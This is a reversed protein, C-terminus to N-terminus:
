PELISYAASIIAPSHKSIARTIFNDGYTGSYQPDVMFGRGYNYGEVMIAGGSRGSNTYKVGHSDIIVVSSGYTLLWDLWPLAEGNETIQISDPLDLVNLYNLPQIEINFGFANGPNKPYSMRFAGSVAEAIQMTPDSDLGFDYKLKGSRISEMEPCEYIANYLEYKVLARVRPQNKRSRKIAQSNLLNTIIAMLDQVSEKIKAM